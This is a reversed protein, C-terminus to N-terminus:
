SGVVVIIENSAAGAGCTGRARVRVYYTGRAVDTATFSTAATDIAALDSSGTASGAELTYSAAGPVGAWMLTVRSGTVTTTLGAPPPLSCGAGVTIVVENSAVSAGAANRARVRVYYIGPGAPGSFSPTTASFVGFDTGGARSGVEVDYSIAGASAAWNLAVTSGSVSFTLNAPADPLGSPVLGSNPDTEIWRMLADYKPAQNRPQELFELSGFRGYQDWRSCHTFHLFLQGGSADSWDQLLRSTLSGMRPDRNAADFLPNLSAYPGGAVLSQGGEYAVLSVHAARAIDAHARVATIVRPEVNTELEQFLQDLNMGLLRPFDPPRFDLYPAIALADTHFRTDGFNLATSSVWPNGTQSALVRILRDPPFVEEFIGFIERSRKSHWRIAAENPDTSLGAALGHESAYVSQPFHFNWIEDSHEIYVKLRPDLQDRVMLKM